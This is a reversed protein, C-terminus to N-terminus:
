ITTAYRKKLRKRGQLNLSRKMAVPRVHLCEEISCRRMTKSSKKTIVKWVSVKNMKKEIVQHYRRSESSEDSLEGIINEFAVNIVINNNLDNEQDTRPSEMQTNQNRGLNNNEQESNLLTVEPTVNNSVISARCLPCNIHSRLWTDICSIHFAHSCKPLLRLTEDEHFENLCVSCETGEILGENKRYKCVTISNIISQQLGVTAILWVPHNHDHNHDRNENLLEENNVDQSRASNNIRWGCMENYCKVKIFYFVIITFILSFLLILIIFYSGIHNVQTQTTHDFPPPTFYYNTNTYCNSPCLPDCFGYCDSTQNSTTETPFLKRQIRAM